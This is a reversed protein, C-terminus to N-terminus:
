SGVGSQEKQTSEERVSKQVPVVLLKWGPVFDVLLYWSKEGWAKM